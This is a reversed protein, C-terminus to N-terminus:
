RTPARVLVSPTAQVGTRPRRSGKKVVTAPVLQTSGGDFGTYDMVLVDFLGTSLKAEADARTIAISVAHGVGRLLSRILYASEEFLDTILVNAM